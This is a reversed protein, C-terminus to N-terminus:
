AVDLNIKLALRPQRCGRCGRRKEPKQCKAEEVPSNGSDCWYEYEWLAPGHANSEDGGHFRALDDPYQMQWSNRWRSVADARAYPDEITEINKIECVACM